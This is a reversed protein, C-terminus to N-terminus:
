QTGGTPAAPVPPSPADFAPSSTTGGVPARATSDVARAHPIRRYPNRPAAAETPAGPTATASVAPSQGRALLAQASVPIDKVKGRHDSLPSVPKGGITITLADPRGTWVMPDFADTPVTYSEGLALQKQMLQQGHGDYFKVWIADERATFVVPGSTAPTPTAVPAVAVPAATPVPDPLALSPLDAGPSYYSRWFVGGAALIVVFLGLALWTLMRSPTKAPDEVDFQHTQRPAPKPAGADLEGRALSALVAEDLGVARAYNRVFGLVYPRGPLSALDGRDLANVHRLTIRTRAAIDATTLGLAERAARLRSSATAPTIDDAAVKVPEHRDGDHQGDHDGDRSVADRAQDM